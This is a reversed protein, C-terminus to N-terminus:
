YTVIWSIFLLVILLIKYKEVKLINLNTIHRKMPLWMSFGYGVTLLILLPKYLPGITNHYWFLLALITLNITLSVGLGRIKTPRYLKRRNYYIATFGNMLLVAVAIWIIPFQIKYHADFLDSYIATPYEEYGPYYLEQKIDYLYNGALEYQHQEGNKYLVVIDYHHHNYKEPATITPLEELNEFLTVISPTTINEVGMYNSSSKGRFQSEGLYKYSTIKAIEGSAAQNIQNSSTYFLFLAIFCISAIVLLERLPKLSISEKVPQDKIKNLITQKLRENEPIKNLEQLREDHKM